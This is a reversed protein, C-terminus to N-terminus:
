RRLTWTNMMDGIPQGSVAELHKWLETYNSNGYSLDELYSRLGLLFLDQGSVLGTSGETSAVVEDSSGGSVTGGDATVFSRAAGPAAIVPVVSISDGESAGASQKAQQQLDATASGFHSKKTWWDISSGSGKYVLPSPSAAPQHEDDKDSADDDGDAYEYEQVQAQELEEAQLVHLVSSDPQSMM